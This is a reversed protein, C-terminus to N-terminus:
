WRLFRPLLLRGLAACALVPAFHWTAWHHFDHSPCVLGFIASGIAGAALGVYLGARGPLVPAGRRLWYVLVAAVLLGSVGGWWGCRWHGWAGDPAQVPSGPLLALVLAALPVLVAVLVWPAATRAAYQPSAMRIVAWACALGLAALLAEGLWPGGQASGLGTGVRLGFVLHVLLLTALIGLLLLGGGAAPRQPRVPRLDAALRDILRNDPDM